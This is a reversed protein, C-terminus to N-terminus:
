KKSKPKVEKSFDEEIPDIKSLKRVAAFAEDSPENMSGPEVVVMYYLAVSPHTYTGFTNKHRSRLKIDGTSEDFGEIRYWIATNNETKYLHVLFKSSGSVPHLNVDPLVTANGAQIPKTLLPRPPVGKPLPQVTVPKSASKAGEKKRINVPM